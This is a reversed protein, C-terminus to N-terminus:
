SVHFKDSAFVCGDLVHAYLCGWLVHCCLFVAAGGSLPVAAIYYYFTLM